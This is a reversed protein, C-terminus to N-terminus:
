IHAFVMVFSSLDPLEDEKRREKRKAENMHYIMRGCLRIGFELSCTCFFFHKGIDVPSTTIHIFKYRHASLYLLM